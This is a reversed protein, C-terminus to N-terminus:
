LKTLKRRAKVGNTQKLVPLLRVARLDSVLVWFLESEERYRLIFIGPVRFDSGHCTGAAPLYGASRHLIGRGGNERTGSLPLQFLRASPLQQKGYVLIKGSTGEFRETRDPHVREGAGWTGRFAPIGCAAQGLSGGM